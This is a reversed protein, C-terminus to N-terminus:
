QLSLNVVAGLILSTDIIDKHVYFLINYFWQIASEMMHKWIISVVSTSCMVAKSCLTSTHPGQAAMEEGTVGGTGSVVGTGTVDVRSYLKM